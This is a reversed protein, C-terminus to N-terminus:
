EDIFGSLFDCLGSDNRIVSMTHVQNHLDLYTMQVHGKTSRTERRLFVNIISKGRIPENRPLILMFDGNAYKIYHVHEGAETCHTDCEIEMEDDEPTIRDDWDDFYDEWEDYRDDWANFRKDFNDLKRHIYHNDLMNSLYMYFSALCTVATLGLTLMDVIDPYDYMMKPPHDQNAQSPCSGNKM